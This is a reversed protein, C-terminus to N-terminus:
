YLDKRIDAQVPIKNRIEVVTEPKIEGEIIEDEIGAQVLINGWPDIVQSHGYLISGCTNVAVVYCQH